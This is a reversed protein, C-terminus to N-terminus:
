MFESLGGDSAATLVDDSQGERKESREKKSGPSTLHPTDDDSESDPTSFHNNLQKLGEKLKENMLLDASTLIDEPVSAIRLSTFLNVAHQVSLLNAFIGYAYVRNESSHQDEIFPAVTKCLNDVFSPDWGGSGTTKQTVVFLAKLASECVDPTEKLCLQELLQPILSVAQENPIEEVTRSLASEIYSFLNRNDRLWKISGQCYKDKNVGAVNYLSDIVTLHTQPHELLMYRDFTKFVEEPPKEQVAIDLDLFVRIKSCLEDGSAALHHIVGSLKANHTNHEPVTLPLLKVQAGASILEQVMDHRDHIAATQLPTFEQPEDHDVGDPNANAELLRTVFVLPAESRAAYHLPTLGNRSVKNPDAGERLLFACLDEKHNVVAATLPTVDDDWEGCPYVGNIDNNKLFDQLEQLNNHFICQLIPHTEGPSDEM